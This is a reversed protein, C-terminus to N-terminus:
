KKRQRALIMAAVGLGILPLTAPEPVTETKTPPAPPITAWTNLSVLSLLVISLIKM